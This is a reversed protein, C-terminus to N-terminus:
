FHINIGPQLKFVPMKLYDTYGTSGGTSYYFGPQAATFDAQLLLSVEDYVKFEVSAGALFTIKTNTTGTKWFSTKGVMFAEITYLQDPSSAQFLGGMLKFTSYFRGKIKAKYYAGAMYTNLNYPGSLLDVKSYEPTNELYDEAYYSAAFGMVCKSIDIGFGLRTNIFWAAEAGISNGLLAYGGYGYEHSAFEGMPLVKGYRMGAFSNYNQAVTVVASLFFLSLLALPKLKNLMFM